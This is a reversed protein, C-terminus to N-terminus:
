LKTETLNNANQQMIQVMLELNSISLRDLREYVDLKGLHLLNEGGKQNWM